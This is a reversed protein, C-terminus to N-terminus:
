EGWSSRSNGFGSSSNSSGGSEGKPAPLYDVTQSKLGGAAAFRQAESANVDYKDMRKVEEPNPRANKLDEESLGRIGTTATGQSNMARGLGALTGGLSDGKTGAGTGLRVNLMRVWGRKGDATKVEMWAGQRKLIDLSTKAPLRATTEADLFPAKKLESQVATVGPEQAWAPLSLWLVLAALVGYRFRM